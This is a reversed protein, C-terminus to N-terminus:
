ADVKGDDYHYVFFLARSGADGILASQKHLEDIEISAEDGDAFIGLGIQHYSLEPTV